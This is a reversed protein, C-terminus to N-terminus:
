RDRAAPRHRRSRRRRRIPADVDDHRNDSRIVATRWRVYRGPVLNSVAFTGSQDTATVAAGGATAASTTLARLPIRRGGLALATPSDFALRGTMTMAPRLTLQVDLIDTGAIEITGRAFEGTNRNVILVYSGPQANPIQFRGDPAVRSTVATQLASGAVSAMIVIVSGAPQGDATVVTGEVRSTTVTELRFDANNREEGAGVTIPAADSARTTGPFYVPAFRLPPAPPAPAPAATGNLAANVEEVSLARATMPLGFRMGTVVYEGPVLGFARYRGQDDTNFPGGVQTLTREGNQMRWQMVAVVANAGPQGREDTVVGTIAGGMQMRIAVSDIKQGNAVVIPTGQRGPRKAGALMALYPQKSAGITYRDVPLSGFAFKGDADSSTVKVIGTTAGLLLVQAFRIPRGDEATVAGSIAATGTPAANAALVAARPDRVPTQQATTHVAAVSLLLLIVPTRMEEGRDTRKEGDNITIRQARGSLTDLRADQFDLVVIGTEVAVFYEGAPLDAILATGKTSLQQPRFRRRSAVPESWYKRDVPFVLVHDDDSRRGQQAPVSVTL